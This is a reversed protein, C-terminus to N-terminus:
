LKGNAVAWRRITEWEWAPRGGVTWKPAPFEPYRIRWVQVTNLQVKLREAIETAGVPDSADAMSMVTTTAAMM